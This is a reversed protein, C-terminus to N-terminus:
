IERMAELYKTAPDKRVDYCINYDSEMFGKDKIKKFGIEALILKLHNTTYAYKHEWSFLCDSFIEDWDNFINNEIYPLVFEKYKKDKGLYAKILLELSPWGIRISGGPKLVRHCETLLYQGDEKQFHEIVHETFIKEVSKDEYPLEKILDHKITNPAEEIDINDWGDIINEGSGLHLKVNEKKTM